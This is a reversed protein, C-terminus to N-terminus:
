FAGFLRDFFGKVKYKIKEKFSLKVITRGSLVDDIDKGMGNKLMLAIRDRENSLEAEIQKRESELQKLERDLEITYSKEEM